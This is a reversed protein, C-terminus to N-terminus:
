KAAAFNLIKLEMPSAQDKLIGEIVVPTNRPVSLAVDGTLLFKDKGAAFFSKSGIQRVEGRANIQFQVVGVNLPQLVDRIAQPSFITGPKYTLMIAEQARSIHVQDIGPMRRFHYESVVACVGCSIGTTRMAVREVQAWVPAASAAFLLFYKRARM